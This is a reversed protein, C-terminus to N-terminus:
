DRDSVEPGEDELRDYPANSCAFAGNGVSIQRDCRLILRDGWGELFPM